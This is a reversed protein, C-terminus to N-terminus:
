RSDGAGELGMVGVAAEAAAPAAVAVSASAAAPTAGSSGSGAVERAAASPGLGLLADPELGATVGLPAASDAFLCCNAALFALLPTAPATTREPPEGVGVGGMGERTTRREKLVLAGVLGAAADEAVVVVAVAGAGAGAGTGAAAAAPAADPADPADPVGSVADRRRLRDSAAASCFLETACTGGLALPAASALARSADTPAACTGITLPAAGAGAGAAAGAGAGSCGTNM